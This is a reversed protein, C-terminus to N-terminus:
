TSRKSTPALIPSLDLAARWAGLLRGFRLEEEADTAADFLARCRAEGAALRAERRIADAAIAAASNQSRGPLSLEVEVSV